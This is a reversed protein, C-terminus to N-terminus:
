VTHYASFKNGEILTVHEPLPVKNYRRVNRNLPVVSLPEDCKLKL